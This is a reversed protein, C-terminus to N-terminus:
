ERLVRPHLGVAGMSQYPHLKSLYGRGQDGDVAPKEQGSDDSTPSTGTTGSPITWPKPSLPPSPAWTSSPSTSSSSTCPPTCTTNVPSPPSSSATAWSPLWPSAWSSGSTCS